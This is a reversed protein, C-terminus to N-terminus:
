SVTKADVPPTAPVVVRRRLLLQVLVYLVMLCGITLGVVGVIMAISDNFGNWLEQIANRKFVSKPLGEGAWSMGMLGVPPGSLVILVIGAAAIMFLGFSGTGVDLASAYTSQAIIPNTVLIYAMGAMWVAYCVLTVIWAWPNLSSRFSHTEKCREVNRLHLELDQQYQPDACTRQGAENTWCCADFDNHCSAVEMPDARSCDCNGKEDCDTCGAAIYICKKNGPNCQTFYDFPNPPCQEAMAPKTGKSATTVAAIQDLRDCARLLKSVRKKTRQYAPNMCDSPSVARLADESEKCNPDNPDCPQDPARVYAYPELASCSSGSSVWMYKFPGDDLCRTCGEYSGENFAFNANAIDQLQCFGITAGALDGCAKNVEIYREREQKFLPDSCGHNSAFLGCNTYRKARTEDNCPKGPSSICYPDWWMFDNVFSSGLFQGNECTGSGAPPAGSLGSVQRKDAEAQLDLYHWPGVRLKWSFYGPMWIMATLLLVYFMGWFIKVKLEVNPDAKALPSMIARRMGGVFMPVGLVFILAMALFMMLALIPDFGITKADTELDMTNKISQAARLNGVQSAVCDGMVEVSIEQPAFKVASSDCNRVAQENIASINRSCDQSFAQAVNMSMDVLNKVYVSSESSNYGITMGSTEATAKAMIENMVDQSLDTSQEQSGTYNSIGVAKCIQDAFQIQCGKAGEVVQRNLCANNVSANVTTTMVSKIAGRITNNVDVTSTSQQGGM